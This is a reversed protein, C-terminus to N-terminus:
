YTDRARFGDVGGESTRADGSGQLLARDPSGPGFLAARAPAQGTPYRRPSKLFGSENWMSMHVPLM